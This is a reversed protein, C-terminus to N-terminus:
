RPRPFLVWGMVHFMPVVGFVTDTASLSMADTMCMAMTHLYQHGQKDATANGNRNGVVETDPALSAGREILRRMLLPTRQMGMAVHIEAEPFQPMSNVM